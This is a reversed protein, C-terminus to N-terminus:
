IIILEDETTAVSDRRVVFAWSAHGFFKGISCKGSCSCYIVDLDWNANQSAHGLKILSMNVAAATTILCNVFNSGSDGAGTECSWNIAHLNDLHIASSTVQSIGQGVPKGLLSVMLTFVM